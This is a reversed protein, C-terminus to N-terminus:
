AQPKRLKIWFSAGRKPESHLGISGGMAEIFEKSIALGLGAGETKDGKKRSYPRFLKDKQQPEIGPGNDRVTIMINKGSELAAMEIVDNEPSYRIANTLLNNLVWVAKQPDAMVAAKPGLLTTKIEIHKSEAFPMVGLIAKKILQEINIKENIIEISGSEIKSLDLIENIMRHIRKNNERIMEICEHQGNNLEGTKENDLISAAMEIAAVPTKLQHSLTAMFRTKASDKEAFETIDTLIIAHGILIKRAGGAPKSSIHIIEPSFLKEKNGETIKIPEYVEEEWEEFGTMLRRILNQMLPNHLAFDSAYQGLLAKREVGLISLARENVFIIAKRDDLGIIADNFQNIVADLRKKEMLIKALNSQEYEQLKQAMKNFSQALQAFENEGTVPVTVEYQGRAVQSIAENFAKIPKSIVSPMGMTFSLGILIGAAGFIIMYLFVEDATKGAIQNRQEIADQNMHYIANALTSVEHIAVRAASPDLPGEALATELTNVAAALQRTLKEEGRETVNAQQLVLNKRITSLAEEFGGAKNSNLLLHIDDLAEDIEQLYALSRNNDKIIARSDMALRYIYFSGVGGLLLIVLFLFGFSLLLQHKIKM